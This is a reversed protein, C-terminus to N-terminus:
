SKPFEWDCWAPISVMLFQAFHYIRCSSGIAGLQFQFVTTQICGSFLRKSGIAGLQFQFQLQFSQEGPRHYRGIAGLQFQFQSLQYLELLAIAGLRVLSSNFSNQNDRNNNPNQEGLRVLSSNFGNVSQLCSSSSTGGLRVLSSNFSQILLILIIQYGSGIAGLQFQFKSSSIIVDTKTVAGLRVLSSNFGRRFNLIHQPAISGIAGLQFQFM